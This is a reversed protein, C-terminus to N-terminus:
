CRRWRATDALGIGRAYHTRPRGAGLRSQALMFGTWQLRILALLTEIRSVVCPVASLGARRAAHWYAGRGDNTPQRSTRRGGDAM